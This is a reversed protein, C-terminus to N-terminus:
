SKELDYIPYNSVDCDGDFLKENCIDNFEQTIEEDATTELYEEISKILKNKVQQKFYSPNELPHKGMRDLIVVKAKMIKEKMANLEEINNFTYQGM